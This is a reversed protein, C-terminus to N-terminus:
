CTVNSSGIPPALLSNSPEVAPGDVTDVADVARPRQVPRQGAQPALSDAGLDHSTPLEARLDTLPGVVAPASPPTVLGGKPCRHEDHAVVGMRGDLEAVSRAKVEHVSCRLVHQLTCLLGGAAEVDTDSAPRGRNALEELGSQDVEHVEHDHGDGEPASHRQPLARVAGFRGEGDLRDAGATAEGM